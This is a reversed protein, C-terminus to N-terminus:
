LALCWPSPLPPAPMLPLMENYLQEVSPGIIIQYQGGKEVVGPVGEIAKLAAEDVKSKDALVLRLRTMCHTHTQINEVGGVAYGRKGAPVITARNDLAQNISQIENQLTRVSIGAESALHEASLGQPHNLLYSLIFLQRNSLYM